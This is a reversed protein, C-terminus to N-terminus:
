HLESKTKQIDLGVTVLRLRYEPLSNSPFSPGRDGCSKNVKGKESRVSQLM